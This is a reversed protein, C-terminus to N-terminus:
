RAHLMPAALHTIPLSGWLLFGRALEGPRPDSDLAIM